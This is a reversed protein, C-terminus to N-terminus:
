EDANHQDPPPLLAAKPPSGKSREIARDLAAAFVVRTSIVLPLLPSSQNSM